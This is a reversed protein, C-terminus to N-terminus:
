IDSISEVTEKEKNTNIFDHINLFKFKVDQRVFCCTGHIPKSKYKYKREAKTQKVFSRFNSM